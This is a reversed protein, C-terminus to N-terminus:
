WRVTTAAGRPVQPHHDRPHRSVPTTWLRAAAPICSRSGEPPASGGDATPDSVDPLDPNSIHTFLPVLTSHRPDHSSFGSVRCRVGSVPLVCHNMTEPKLHDLYCAQDTLM